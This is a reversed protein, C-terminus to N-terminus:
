ALFHPYGNERVSVGEEMARQAEWIALSRMKLRPYEESEDIEQVMISSGYTLM